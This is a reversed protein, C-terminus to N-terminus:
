FKNACCRIRWTRAVARRKAAAKVAVRSLGRIESAVLHLEHRWKEDFLADGEDEENMRHAEATHSQRLKRWYARHRHDPFKPFARARKSREAGGAVSVAVGVAEFEM